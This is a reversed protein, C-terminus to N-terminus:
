FTCLEEHLTGTIKTLNWHLMLTRPLNEFFVWIDFKMSNRGTPASVNGASPCVSLCAPIIISTTAKRLKTFADLINLRGPGVNYIIMHGLVSLFESLRAWFMDRQWRWSTGLMEVCCLLVTVCDGLTKDGINIGTRMDRIDSNDSPGVSIYLNGLQYKVLKYDYPASVPISLWINIISLYICSCWSQYFDTGLSSLQEKCDSPCVSM